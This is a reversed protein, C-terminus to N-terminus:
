RQQSHHSQGCFCGHRHQHHWVPQCQWLWPSHNRHAWECCRGIFQGPHDRHGPQRQEGDNPCRSFRCQGRDRLCQWGLQAVVSQSPDSHSQRGRWYGWQNREHVFQDCGSERVDPHDCGIGALQHYQHRDAGTINATLNGQGGIAKDIVTNVNKSFTLNANNSLTVGTSNGLTGSAGGSGVQLTGASVTTAGSYSNDAALTTTGTGAQNVTGSGGIVNSVTMANSRNFTLHGNNTVAGTGLAGTTTANGIQLTGTNITTTGTYSNAGTLVQTGSGNKVVSLAPGNESIVGAYTGSGNNNGLSLTSASSSGLNWSTFIGAGTLANIALTTGGNLRTTGNNVLNNNASLALASNLQLTTGANVIYDGTFTNLASSSMISRGSTLTINGTGSVLGDISTRDGTGDSFNINKHLVLPGGFATWGQGGGGVGGLTVTGTGQNTVTVTRTLKGSDQSVDKGKELLLSVNSSGTNADGLTIAGVGATRNYRGDGNGLLLTGRSITTGGAFTNTGGSMASLKTKGAGTKLLAGSEIIGSLEGNTATNITILGGSGAALGGAGTVKGTSANLLINL